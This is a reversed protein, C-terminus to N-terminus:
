GPELEQEADEEKEEEDMIGALKLLLQDREKKFRNRERATRELLTPREAKM